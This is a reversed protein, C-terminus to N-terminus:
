LSKQCYVHAMMWQPLRIMILLAHTQVAQYERLHRVLLESPISGDGDLEGCATMQLTDTTGSGDFISLFDWCGGQLGTGTTTELDVFTFTVTVVDGVVDPCIIISDSSSAAYAAAPCM